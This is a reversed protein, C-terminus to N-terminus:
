SFQRPQAGFTTLFLLHNFSIMDLPLNAIILLIHINKINKLVDFIHIIYIYKKIILM